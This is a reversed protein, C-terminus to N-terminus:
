WTTRDRGGRGHHHYLGLLTRWVVFFLAALAGLIAIVVVFALALQTAKDGPMTPIQQMM